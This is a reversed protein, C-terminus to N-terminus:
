ARRRPDVLPLALDGALNAFLVLAAYVAAAGMVLPYDRAVIANVMLRGMGPWAFVAEVFISGAVLGPLSLAFLVVLQPLVTALVHRFYVRSETMGKARATRVFDQSLVDSIGSRAYRAIGAAGVAALISVPLLSHRVVDAIAAGGGLELGPSRLGFAPLRLWPPLGWAAAGYTFVAVCALALWFSPAAYVFTTMVTLLRDLGRGRRAAQVMGIPVGILFTLLLSASGLGISVPLAQLLARAVPQHLSFSEGLDGRLLAAAWRAYQVAISQDLGLEGRIRAVDAASATPPVLFAAPDGPALRILAFTITLILWLLVLTLGIRRM